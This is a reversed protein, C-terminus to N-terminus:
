EGTIKVIFSDFREQIRSTFNDDSLRTKMIADNDKQKEDPIVLNIPFAECANCARGLLREVQPFVTAYGFTDNKAEDRSACCTVFYLRKIRKRYKLIFDRLPSIFRGMWIPGCLVIRDYDSIQHKLNSIGPSVRIFSFLLLFPFLNMRPKIEEIDSNLAHSFKEALYKNSGTNSYYVLLIKMINKSEKKYPLM